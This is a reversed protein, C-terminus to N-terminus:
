SKSERLRGLGSTVVERGVVCASMKTYNNAVKAVRLKKMLNIGVVMVIM